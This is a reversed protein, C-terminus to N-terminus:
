SGIRQFAAHSLPYMNHFSVAGRCGSLRSRAQGVWGRLFGMTGSHNDWAAMAGNGVVRVRWGVTSATVTNGDGFHLPVHVLHQVADGFPGM